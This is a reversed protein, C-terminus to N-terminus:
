MEFLKIIPLEKIRLVGDIPRIKNRIVGDIESFSTGQLLMTVDFKGKTYDCYVVNDNLYLAPYITELKEKEIELMVYSSANKWYDRNEVAENAGRDRGLARDVSGIIENVNEAIMPPEVTMFVTERLGEIPKIKKEILENITEIDPAQLLLVMDYDGKTADCYLVNDMFYFRQYIETLDVSDDFKLMLYTSTSKTEAEITKIPEAQGNFASEERPNQPLGIESFTRTLEDATFPKELYADAKEMKVDESVKESGYGTIVIVPLEPYNFKIVKLLKIGDIDPLRVDLVVYHLPIQRKKFMALTKLAKMGSECPETEFGKQLLGMSLSRRLSAEDDILLVKKEM